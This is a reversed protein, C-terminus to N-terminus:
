EGQEAKWQSIGIVVNFQFEIKDQSIVSTNIDRMQVYDIGDMDGMYSAWADLNDLNNTWCAMICGPTEGTSKIEMRNVKVGFLGADASVMNIVNWWDPDLGRLDKIDANSKELEDFMEQIYSLRGINETLSRQETKLSELEDMPQKIYLSMLINGALLIMAIIALVMAVITWIKMISSQRRM